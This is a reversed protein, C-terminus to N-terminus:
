QKEFLRTFDLWEKSVQMQTAATRFAPGLPENRTKPEFGQGFRFPGFNAAFSLVGQANSFRTRVSLECAGDPSVM